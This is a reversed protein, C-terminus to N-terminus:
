TRKFPVEFPKNTDVPLLASDGSTTTAAQGHLPPQRSIRGTRDQPLVTHAAPSRFQPDFQSSKPLGRSTDAELYMMANAASLFVAPEDPGGVPKVATATPIPSFFAKTSEDVDPLNASTPSTRRRLSAFGDDDSDSDGTAAVLSTQPPKSPQHKSKQGGSAAPARLPVASNSSAHTQALAPVTTSATEHATTRTPTDISAEVLKVRKASDSIVTPPAARKPRPRRLREADFEPKESTVSKVKMAYHKDSLCNGLCEGFNRLCRKLADTQAEKRAKDFAMIKNPANQMSGYGIAEHYSGSTLTVRVVCQVGVNVKGGAVVDCFDVSNSKIETNWGDYGFIENALQIIRHAEVYPHNTKYSIYEPGLEQRLESSIRDREQIPLQPKGKPGESANGPRNGPRHDAM